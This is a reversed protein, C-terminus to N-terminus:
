SIFSSIHCTIEGEKTRCLTGLYGEGNGCQWDFYEKQPRAFHHLLAMITGGHVVLALSQGSVEPKRLLELFAGIIRTEFQQRSEGGPFALEGGSDLYAQYAPNGSLERYNRYEFAGFNMERLGSCSLLQQGPYLLQASETCRRLGTTVIRDAAPYCGAAKKELLEAYGQPCLPEDTSGVYRKELNGATRGHRILILRTIIETTDCDRM